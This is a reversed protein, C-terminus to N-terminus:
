KNSWNESPLTPLTISPLDLFTSYIFLMFSFLFFFLFLFFLRNSQQSIQALTCHFSLTLKDGLIIYCFSIHVHLDQNIVCRIYKYPLQSIVTVNEATLGHYKVAGLLFVSVALDTMLVYTIYCPTFKRSILEFKDLLVPNALQLHILKSTEVFQESQNLPSHSLFLFLRISGRCMIIFYTLVLRLTTRPSM